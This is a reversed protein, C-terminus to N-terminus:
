SYGKKCNDLLITYVSYFSREGVFIESTRRKNSNNYKSIYIYIVLKISRTKQEKVVEEKKRIYDYLGDPDM